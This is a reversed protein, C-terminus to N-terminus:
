PLGALFREYDLVRLHHEPYARDYGRTDVLQFNFRTRLLGSFKRLAPAPEHDNSKCEVLMWPRRDRVVLFDVEHKERTRLYHLAFDGHALDTWAHCAKLLHLAALNERRPGPGEVPLFDYLYLKPEARLTRSLRGAWPRVLLVHYLAELIQVWERVTGYAVGVDERLSNVSLPSGVRDPLLDALVRLAQLDHVHRLDRLDEYVLRETRLRSWRRARAQNGALLPEPFGGLALLDEFPFVPTTQQLIRDPTPPDPREGLTFPHLRYPLYRGLLSDGSRRFLDLRASGTVVIPLERGRLDWLGKLRSKWRRDKHIEDLLIPGEGRDAVAGVPDKVWRIRFRQDDWSFENHPSSLLTRALTTKGVQRPGSLFAMKHDALADDRVAAELYRTRPPPAPSPTM